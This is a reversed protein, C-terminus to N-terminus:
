TTTQCDWAQLGSCAAASTEGGAAKWYNFHEFHWKKGNSKKSKKRRTDNDTQKHVQLDPPIAPKSRLKALLSIHWLFAACCGRLGLFCGLVTASVNLKTFKFDTHASTRHLKAQTKPSLRAWGATRHMSRLVAAPTNYHTQKRSCHDYRLKRHM